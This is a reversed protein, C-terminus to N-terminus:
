CCIQRITDKAVKRMERIKWCYLIPNLTSNFYIQTLTALVIIRNIRQEVDCNFQTHVCYFVSSLFIGVVPAGMCHYFNDKQITCYETSNRRQETTRPQYTGPSSSATPTTELLDEHLLLDLNQRLSSWCCHISDLCRSLEMFADGRMFCWDGLHM